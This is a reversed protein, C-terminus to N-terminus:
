WSLGEVIGPERWERIGLEGAKRQCARAPRPTWGRCGIHFRLTWFIPHWQVFVPSFRLHQHTITGMHDERDLTGLDLFLLVSRLGSAAWSDVTLTTQRELPNYFPPTPSLSFSSSSPSPSISATHPGCLRFYKRDSFPKCAAERSGERVLLLVPM